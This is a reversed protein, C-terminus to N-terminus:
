LRTMALLYSGNWVILQTIVFYGGPEELRGLSWGSGVRFTAPDGVFVQERISLDQM